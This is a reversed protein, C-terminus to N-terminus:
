KTPTASWCGSQSISNDLDCARCMRSVGRQSFSLHVVQSDVTITRLVPQAYFGFFIPITGHDEPAHRAIPSPINHIQSDSAPRRDPEFSLYHRATPRTFNRHHSPQGSWPIPVSYSLFTIPCSVIRTYGCAIRLCDHSVHHPTNRM